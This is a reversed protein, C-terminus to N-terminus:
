ATVGAPKWFSYIGREVEIQMDPPAQDAPQERMWGWMKTLGEALTTRYDYGLLDISKQWTSWAFHVEHRPECFEIESGPLILQLTEAAELITCPIIGGLNIIEHSAEPVTAAQWFCPLCDDIYSFARKQMGNGYVRLPLGRMYRCMWIALVNRYQQCYAQGPGYVNHPRIITWDLGHQEGAVRIDAEAAAKAIGYPDIPNLRDTEAFPPEGRGYTAMSSTFVLKGVDHNLCANVVEATALLNNRYNYMRIFPSLGEAAYAAFHFIRNPRERAVIAGFAGEGITALHFASLGDPVNSALGCSLDDVGVVREDTNALL